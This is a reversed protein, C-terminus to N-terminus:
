SIDLIEETQSEMKYVRGEGEKRKVSERAGRMRGFRWNDGAVTDGKVKRPTVVRTLDPETLATLDSAEGRPTFQELSLNYARPICM